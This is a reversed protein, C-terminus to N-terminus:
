TAKGHKFNDRKSDTTITQEDKKMVQGITGDGLGDYYGGDDQVQSHRQAM